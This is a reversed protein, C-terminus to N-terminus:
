GGGRRKSIPKAKPTSLFLLRVAVAVVVLLFFFRVPM